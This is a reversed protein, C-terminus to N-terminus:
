SNGVFSLHNLYFPNLSLFLSVNHGTTDITLVTPHQKGQPTNPMTKTILAILM